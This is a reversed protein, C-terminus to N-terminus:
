RREDHWTGKLNTKDRRLSALLRPTQDANNYCRDQQKLAVEDSQMECLYLNHYGDTDLVLAAQEALAIARRYDSSIAIPADFSQAQAHVVYLIM